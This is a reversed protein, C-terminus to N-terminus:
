NLWRFVSAMGFVFFFFSMPLGIVLQLMFEAQTFNSEDWRKISYDYSFMRGLCLMWCCAILGLLGNGVFFLSIAMNM